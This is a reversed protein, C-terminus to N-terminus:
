DKSVGQILCDYTLDTRFCRCNGKEMEVFQEVRTQSSTPVRPNKYLNLGEGSLIVVRSRHTHIQKHIQTVILSSRSLSTRGSIAETARNLTYGIGEETEM